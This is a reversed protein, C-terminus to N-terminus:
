RENQQMGNRVELPPIPYVYRPDNPPLTYTQGDLERTLTVAFRPEKNLRRLDMWRIGRFILEKHRETLIKSLAEDADAATFPVYTVNKNWRKVMLTNLDNLAAATNGARAYCEARNLLVEDVAVGAFNGGGQAGGYSGFFSLTGQDSNFFLQKRLDNEEYMDLLSQEINMNRFFTFQSTISATHFLVEENFLPIKFLPQDSNLLDNYDMLTSTIDLCSNAYLLARPYDRMAMCVRSLLGYAAQKSPRTKFKPAVPLNVAAMTIDAIIRDYTEQLTSRPTAINIDVTSRLPVGLDTGATAADYPKCFVQALNYFDMARLFLASSYAQDWAVSNTANKEVKALGELVVNAHLIREFATNWDASFEESQSYVDKQWLYSKRTTADAQDFVDKTVYYGDACLDPIMTNNLNFVSGVNDLLAQYSEVTRPDVLSKDPKADLWEDNCSFLMGALPM